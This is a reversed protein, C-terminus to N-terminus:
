GKVVELKLHEVAQGNTNEEFAVSSTDHHNPDIQNM